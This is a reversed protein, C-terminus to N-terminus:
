PRGQAIWERLINYASAADSPSMEKWTVGYARFLTDTPPTFGLGACEPHERAYLFQSARGSVVDADWYSATVGATALMAYLGATIDPEIERVLTRLEDLAAPWGHAYLQYTPTASAM